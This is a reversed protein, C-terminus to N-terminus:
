KEKLNEKNIFIEYGKKEIIRILNEKGEAVIQGDFMVYVKDPKLYHLLRQYHTIILFSTKKNKEKLKKIMNCVSKLSDIDLGSDTEDLIALKPKIIALQLIEIKKKEGGSFGVNIDRDLIDRRINLLKINKELENEFDEKGYREQFILKLFNKVSVGSIEEPYQFSLFIGEKSREDPSLNLINKGKFIIKGSVDFNQKGMLVNALTSKGSGNPGLIFITENSRLKLNLNNIIKKDGVKVSLSKIELM